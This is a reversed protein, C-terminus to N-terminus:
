TGELLVKKAIETKTLRKEDRYVPRTQGLGITTHNGTGCFYSYEWLAQLVRLWYPDPEAAIFRCTGVFGTFTGQYHATISRLNFRNVNVKEDVFIRTEIPLSLPSFKNWNNLWSGFVSLPLPFGLYKHDSIHFVTPSYFESELSFDPRDPSILTQTILTEYTTQRNWIHEKTKEVGVDIEGLKLSSIGSKLIENLIDTMKKNLTTVRFYVVEDVSLSVVGGKPHLNGFLPSITFPKLAQEDHLSNSFEEDIQKVWGLFAAYLARGQDFRIIGSANPHLTFVTSLLTM